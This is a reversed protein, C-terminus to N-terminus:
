NPAGNCRPRRTPHQLECAPQPAIAALNEAAILIGDLIACASELDEPIGSNRAYRYATRVLQAAIVIAEILVEPEPEPLNAVAKTESM